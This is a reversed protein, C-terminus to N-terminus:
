RLRLNASDDADGRLAAHLRDLLLLLRFALADAPPLEALTCEARAAAQALAANVRMSVSADRESLVREAHLTSALACWRLACM